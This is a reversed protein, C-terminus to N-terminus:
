LHEADVPTVNRDVGSHVGGLQPRGRRHRRQLEGDVLFRNADIATVVPQVGGDVRFRVLEMVNPQKRGCQLLRDAPKEVVEVPSDNRVSAPSNHLLRDAPKEVVEVAPILEVADCKEDVVGIVEDLGKRGIVIIELHDAVAWAVRDYTDEALYL